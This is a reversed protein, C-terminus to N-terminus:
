KNLEKIKQDLEAKSLGLSSLAVKESILGQNLLKLIANLEGKQIGKAMSEARLDEIAERVEVPMLKEEKARKINKYKPNVYDKTSMMKMVEAIESKDDNEANIYIEHYGNNVFSMNEKICREIHYTTLGLGFIDKITLYVMYLDPLNDYVEKKKLSMVDIVSGYYRVRKQDDWKSNNDNNEVEVSIKRGDFLECLCDLRIGRQKLINYTKQSEYKLVKLKSDGFIVQLLEEVFEKRLIAKNFLKDNFLTLDEEFYKKVVEESKKNRM